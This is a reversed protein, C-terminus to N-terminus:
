CVGVLNLSLRLIKCSLISLNGVVRSIGKNRGDMEEAPGLCIVHRCKERRSLTPVRQFERDQRNLNKSNM